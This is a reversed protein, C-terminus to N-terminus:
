HWMENAIILKLCEITELANCLQRALSLERMPRNDDRATDDGFWGDLEIDPIMESLKKAIELTASKDRDFIERLTRNEPLTKDDAVESECESGPNESPSEPRIKIEKM